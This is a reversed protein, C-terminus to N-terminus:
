SSGKEMASSIQAMADCVTSRIAEFRENRAGTAEDMYLDRRVELMLAQVRKEKGYHKIPTLAGGFPHDVDVTFGAERFFDCAVDTLFGATHFPDTGICIEPRVNDSAIEYPLRQSPFSHCDLLLASGCEELARDVSETLLQHHPRYYKVLLEEREDGELSKRLPWQDHTRTYFVGMGRSVMVEEEDKEFREVDVLLRSLPFVIEEGPGDGFLVDTHMDTMQILENTVGEKDLLFQDRYAEPIETSSHPIHRIVPSM